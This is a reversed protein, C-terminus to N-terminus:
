CERVEIYCNPLECHNSDFPDIALAEVMWGVEVPYTLTSTNDQLWPADSIDYSYYRVLTPYYLWEWITSWTAGGDTSRFIQEDPWWCNLAAVMLTGPTLLDVSLGGYGYYTSAMPTPSIDTWVGSTINYKHVTGNTGDYPGAGNAYSVYLVHESPSLIGKHPLFGYQPEGSVWAWTVGGDESM